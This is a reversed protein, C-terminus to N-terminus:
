KWACGCAHHQSWHQIEAHHYRRMSYIFSTAVFVSEHRDALAILDLAITSAVSLALASGVDAAHSRVESNASIENETLQICRFCPTKGPIVLPGVRVEASSPIEVLLHRSNDSMWRQISDPAPDGISIILDPKHVHVKPAVFLAASKRIEEVVTKRVQGIDSRSIYSGGIDSELIKLTPHKSGVRNIVSLKSFGSASLVGVLANVIKGYGFILISFERRKIVSSRGADVDGPSLTAADCEVEMRNMFAEVAYDQVISETDSVYDIRGIEPNYRRLYSIPTRELDIFDHRRLEEILATVANDPVRAEQAIQCVTRKGDFLELIRRPSVGSWDSPFTTRRWRTGVAVTRHLPHIHFSVPAKLVPRIM